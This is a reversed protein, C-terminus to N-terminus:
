DPLANLVNLVIECSRLVNQNTALFPEVSRIHREISGDLTRYAGMNGKMTSIYESTQQNASDIANAFKAIKPLSPGVSSKNTAGSKGIWTFWGDMGEALADGTKKHEVIIREIQRSFRDLRHSLVDFVSLQQKLSSLQRVKNMRRTMLSLVKAMLDDISAVTKPLEVIAIEAQLRYDLFGKPGLHLKEERRRREILRRLLSVVLLLMGFLIAGSTRDRWSQPVRALLTALSTAILGLISPTHVKQAQLARSSTWDVSLWFLAASVIIIVVSALPRGKMQRTEEWTLARVTLLAVAVLYLANAITYQDGYMAAVGLGYVFLVIAGVVPWQWLKQWTQRGAAPTALPLPPVEM